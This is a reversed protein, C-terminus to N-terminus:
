AGRASDILAALEGVTEFSVSLQDGLHVDFTEEISYVINVNALSDWGEVEAPKTEATLSIDDDGLLDRVIAEIQVLTTPQTGFESTSM